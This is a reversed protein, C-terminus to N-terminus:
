RFAEHTNKFRSHFKADALLTQVREFPLLCAEASGAAAGGILRAVYEDIQFNNILKRKTADYCGFMLSLSVTKQALPPLVGRYLYFWGENRIQHFAPAISIGHLMQRFITKYIPYTITINVFAAAWGCAFTKWDFTKFKNHPGLILDSAYLKSGDSETMEVESAYKKHEDNETM